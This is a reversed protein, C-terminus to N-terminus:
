LRVKRKSENRRLFYHKWENHFSRKSQNLLNILRLYMSKKVEDQEHSQVIAAQLAHILLQAEQGDLEVKMKHYPAKSM